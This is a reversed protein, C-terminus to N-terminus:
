CMSVPSYVKLQRVCLHGNDVSGLSVIHTAAFGAWAVTLETIHLWGATVLIQLGVETLRPNEPSVSRLM